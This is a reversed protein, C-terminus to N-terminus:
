KDNWISILGGFTGDSLVWDWGCSQVGWVDRIICDINRAVKTKRLLCDM